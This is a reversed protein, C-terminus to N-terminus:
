ITHGFGVSGPKRLGRIIMGGFSDNLQHHGIKTGEIYKLSKMSWTFFWNWRFSYPYEGHTFSKQMEFELSYLAMSSAELWDLRCDAITTEKQSVETKTSRPFLSNNWANTVQWKMWFFFFFHETIQMNKKMQKELTTLKKEASTKPFEISM